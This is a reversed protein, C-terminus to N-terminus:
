IRAAVSCIVCSWLAYIMYLTLASFLSVVTLRMFKVRLKGRDRLDEDSVYFTLAVLGFLCMSLWLLGHFPLHKPLIFAFVMGPNAVTLLFNKFTDFLAYHALMTAFLCAVYSLVMFILINYWTAVVCYAFVVVLLTRRVPERNMANADLADNLRNVVSPVVWDLSMILIAGFVSWTLVEPVVDVFAMAPPLV